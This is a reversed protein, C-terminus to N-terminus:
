YNILISGKSLGAGFGVLLIKDGPKLINSTNMEALALPISAASTNGFRELNLYFKKEDIKLTKAVQQIIRYNAQHPVIYDIQDLSTNTEELISLICDVVAHVAFKFVKNGIMHLYGDSESVNETFPNKVNIANLTLVNDTDIISKTYAKSLGQDNSMELVVAGAGDGFLICTSRDTWDITKSIVEAGIVLAKNHQGTLLLSRAVSLAYVFGSCASNIDFVTVNESIDLQKQVLNACGPLFTEPTFTAVIILDIENKNIGADDLANVAAETALISTDVDSIRREKIGTRQYIWEDNTDVFKSLDDNTVIRNPISAGIGTIKVNKM